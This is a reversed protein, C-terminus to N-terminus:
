ESREMQEAEIGLDVQPNLNPDNTQFYTGANTRWAHDYRNDLQVEDGTTPDTYRDVNNIGDITARHIADSSANSSAIGADNIRGIEATTEAIIAGRQAQAQVGRRAIQTNHRNMRAQWQPDPQATSSFHGVLALDLQGNPATAVVPAAAIGSYFKRVEGPMVGMLTNEMFQVVVSISERMEGQPGAYAILVEGGEKWFRTQGDSPPPASRILDNRARFDLVRAGPRHRQVFSQLYARVDTIQWRPCSGQIDMGLNDWSWAEAPLMQLSQRGDPSQARWQFSPTAGCPAQANWLVGGETRWGAPLEVWLAPMPKEFGNPDIVAVRQLGSGTAGQAGVAAAQAGNAAPVWAPDSGRATGDGNAAVGGANAPDNGGYGPPMADPTSKGGKGAADLAAQKGAAAAEDAQPNAGCAALALALSALALRTPRIPSSHM